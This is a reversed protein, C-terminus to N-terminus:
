GTVNDLNILAYAQLIAFTLVVVGVIGLLGLGMVSLEFPKVILIIITALVWFWIWFFSQFCM